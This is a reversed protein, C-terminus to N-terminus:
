AKNSHRKMYRRVNPTQSLAYCAIMMAIGVIIGVYNIHIDLDEIPEGLSGVLILFGLFGLLGTLLSLFAKRM